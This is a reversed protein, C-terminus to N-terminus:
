PRRAGAESSGSVAPVCGQGCGAREPWLSCREVSLWTKGFVAGRVARGSDLAVSAPGGTGPCEVVRTRRTAAFATLGVPLLVAVAGIGLIALIVLGPSEM